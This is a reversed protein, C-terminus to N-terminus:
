AAIKSRLELPEAPLAPPRMGAAPRFPPPDDQPQAGPGRLRALIAAFRAETEAMRAQLESLIQSTFANPM